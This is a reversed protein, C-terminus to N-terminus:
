ARREPKVGHRERWRVIMKILEPIRNGAVEFSNRDSCVKGDYLPVFITSGPRYMAVFGEAGTLDVGDGEIFGKIAASDLAEIKVLTRDPFTASLEPRAEEVSLCQAAAPSSIAALLFLAALLRM